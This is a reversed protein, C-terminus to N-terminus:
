NNNNNNDDSDTETDSDSDSEYFKGNEHDVEKMILLDDILYTDFTSPPNWYIIITDSNDPINIRTIHGIRFIHNIGILVRRDIWYGRADLFLLSTILNQYVLDADALPRVLVTQYNKNKSIGFM